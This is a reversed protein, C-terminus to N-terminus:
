NGKTLNRAITMNLEEGVLHPSKFTVETQCENFIGTLTDEPINMFTEMCEPCFQTARCKELEDIARDMDLARRYPRDSTMADFADAIAFIRAGLPIKEGALRDPYGNGNFWEHHHLVIPEAPSLFEIRAVMEAGLQPHTKMVVWEENSLKGPKFLIADPIGIKGIDHLLSGLRIDELEKGSLGLREALVSAYRVVRLSHGKTGADRKDLLVALANLTASFNNDLQVLANSLRENIAAYVLANEVAPGIKRAVEAILDIERQKYVGPFESGINLAGITKGKSILPARVSCRVRQTLLVEDELFNSHEKLDEEVITRGTSIVWASGSGEYPARETHLAHDGGNYILLAYDDFPDPLTITLKNFVFVQKLKETFEPFYTHLDLGSAFAAVIGDIAQKEELLSINKLAASTMTGLITVLDRISQDPDEVICLIAGFVEENCGLPTLFLEKRHVSFTEGFSNRSDTLDIYSDGSYLKEPSALPIPEGIKARLEFVGNAMLYASARSCGIVENIIKLLEILVVEKEWDGHLFRAFERLIKLGFFGEQGM